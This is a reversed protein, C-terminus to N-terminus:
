ATEIPGRSASGRGLAATVLLIEGSGAQVTMTPRDDKGIAASGWDQLTEGGLTVTIAGDARLHMIREAGAGHRDLGSDNGAHIAFLALDMGTAHGAIDLAGEQPAFDCAAAFTTGTPQARAYAIDCDTVATLRYAAHPPMYVARSGKGQRLHVAAVAIGDRSIAISTEGRMAVIFVEDDEAEGDITVGQAFSYVRLAVLQEFGTVARDIDVPRPCPGAGPLDIARTFDPRVILPGPMLGTPSM